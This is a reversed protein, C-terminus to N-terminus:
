SAGNRQTLVLDALERVAGDGGRRTLVLRAAALVAPHADAVAVPWGVVGLAGLDNVDNGLYAVRDLPIGTRTSWTRLAAAKDDIGHLVDVRLKAARAAVVPNTETSLILLPVGAERLMRVGMGDRRNVVVTEAGDTAISARDDTHVGDFDTVVADVDIDPASTDLLPVLAAAAALDSPDDIDIAGRPDVEAIEVRGFFRHRYQRFGDARLAYFAGTERFEPARDQRRPRVRADHNVAVASGDDGVRWLFAHSATASFVVDASGELVRMVAADLDAPVIFPSTAQVFLLVEPRVGDAALVGLAHLLAAESSAEDGSLDAPREITRAGAATAEAAIREGDTSVYVADVLEAALAAHVARAVLSRGAVPALNKGPIGKSGARAPIVAVVRVPSHM